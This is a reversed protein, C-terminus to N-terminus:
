TQNMEQGPTVGLSIVWWHVKDTMQWCNCVWDDCHTYQQGAPTFSMIVNDPNLYSLYRLATGATSMTESHNFHKWLKLTGKITSAGCHLLMVGSFPHLISQSYLETLRIYLLSTPRGTQVEPSSQREANNWMRDSRMKWAGKLVLLFFFCLAQRWCMGSTECLFAWNTVLTATQLQSGDWAWVVCVSRGKRQADTVKAAWKM